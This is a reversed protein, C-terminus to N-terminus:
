FEEIARYLARDFAGYLALARGVWDTGIGYQWREGLDFLLPQHMLGSSSM